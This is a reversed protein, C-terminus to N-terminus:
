CKRMMTLVLTMVPRQYQVLQINSMITASSLFDPDSFISFNERLPGHTHTDFNMAIWTTAAESLVM